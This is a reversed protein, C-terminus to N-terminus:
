EAHLSALKNLPSLSGDADHVMGRGDSEEDWRGTAGGSGSVGNVRKAALTCLASAPKRMNPARPVILCGQRIVRSSTPPPSPVQYGTRVESSVLKVM